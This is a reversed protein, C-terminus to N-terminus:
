STTFTEKPDLGRLCYINVFNCFFFYWFFIYIRSGFIFSTFWRVWFFLKVFLQMFLVRGGCVWNLGALWTVYTVLDECGDGLFGNGSFGGCLVKYTSRWFLLWTTVDFFISLNSVSFLSSRHSFDVGHWIRGGRVVRGFIWGKKASAKLSAFVFFRTGVPFLRVRGAWWTSSFLFQSRSFDFFFFCSVLRSLPLACWLEM